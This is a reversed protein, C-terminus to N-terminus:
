LMARAVSEERRADLEDLANQRAIIAATLAAAAAQDDKKEICGLWDRVERYVAKVQDTAEKMDAM